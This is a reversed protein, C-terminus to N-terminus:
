KKSSYRSIKRVIMVLCKVFLYGICIASVLISFGALDPSWVPSVFDYTFLGKPLDIKQAEVLQNNSIYETICGLRNAGYFSVPDEKECYLQADNYINSGEQDAIKKQETELLRQYTGFLQIPPKLGNKSGLPTNMHGFIHRRLDDLAVRTDGGQSDILILNDYLKKATRSNSSLAIVSILMSVALVMYVSATGWKRLWYKM